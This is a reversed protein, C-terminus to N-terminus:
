RRHSRGERRETHPCRRNRVEYEAQQRRLARCTTRAEASVAADCSFTRSPDSFRFSRGCCRCVRILDVNNV